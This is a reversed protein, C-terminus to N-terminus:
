SQRSRRNRRGSSNNEYNYSTYQSLNLLIGVGLCSALLSSGGYSIFPLTIGTVPLLGINVAINTFAQTVLWITIGSALFFGFRDRSYKAIIFGRVSLFLYSIVLLFIRFFGLDGRELSVDAQFGAFVSVHTCTYAYTHLSPPAGM